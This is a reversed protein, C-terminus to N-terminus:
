DIPRGREVGGDGRVFAARVVDLDITGGARAAEEAGIQSRETQQIRYRRLDARGRKRGLRRASKHIRDGEREALVERGSADVCGASELQPLGAGVSEEIRLVIQEHRE